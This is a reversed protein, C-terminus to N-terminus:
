IVPRLVITEKQPIVHCTDREILLHEMRIEYTPSDGAASVQLTYTGAREGAGVLTPDEDSGQNRLTESYSPNNDDKLIAVANPVPRGSEDKVKLTFGYVYIQTCFRGGGDSGPLGPRPSAATGPQQGGPSTPPAPQSPSSSRNDTGCSSITVSILAAIATLLANNFRQHNSIKSEMM